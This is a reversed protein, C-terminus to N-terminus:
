REIIKGRTTVYIDSSGARTSGFYLTTGDWSLSPRTVSGGSNVAPGLNIPTSWPDSISTRTAVYIDNDRPVGPVDSRASYFYLELGDRSLNPQGDDVLSNVGPVL